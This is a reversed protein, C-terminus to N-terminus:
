DINFVSVAVLKLKEVDTLTSFTRRYGVMPTHSTTVVFSAIVGFSVSTLRLVTHLFFM